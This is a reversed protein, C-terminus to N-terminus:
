NGKEGDVPLMVIFVSGKGVESEFDITGGHKEVITKANFLGLGIGWPIAFNM